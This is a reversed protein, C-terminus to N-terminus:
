SESQTISAFVNISTAITVTCDTPETQPHQGTAVQCTFRTFERLSEKMIVAGYFNDINNNTNIRPM